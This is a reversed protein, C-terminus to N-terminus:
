PTIESNDLAIKGILPLLFYESHYAKVMLFIWLMFGASSILSLVVPIFRFFIGGAAITLIIWAISFLIAQLSHFRVFKSEKETVFFLLGTFLGLVYCLSGALNENLGSSSTSGGVGLTAGIGSLSMRVEMTDGTIKLM